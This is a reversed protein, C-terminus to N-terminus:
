REPRSVSQTMVRKAKVVAVCGDNSVVESITWRTNDIEVVGNRVPEFIEECLLHFVSEHESQMRGDNGPHSSVSTDEKLARLRVESGNPASYRADRAYPDNAIVWAADDVMNESFTGVDLGREGAM